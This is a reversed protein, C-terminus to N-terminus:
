APLSTRVALPPSRLNTWASVAVVVAPGHVDGSHGDVPVSTLFGLAVVIPTFDMVPRKSDPTYMM